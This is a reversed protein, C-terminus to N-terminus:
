RKVGPQHRQGSLSARTHRLRVTGPLLGSEKMAKDKQAVEYQASAVELAPHSGLASQVAEPLTEARAPVSLCLTLLFVARAFIKDRDKM